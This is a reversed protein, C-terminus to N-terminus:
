WSSATAPLRREFAREIGERLEAADALADRRPALSWEPADHARAVRAVEQIVGLGGLGEYLTEGGPSLIAVYLSAAAIRGRYGSIAIGSIGDEISLPLPTRAPLDRRVGDWWAHHGGVRARRLVLSPMVLVGYEAHGALLEAFRSAVARPEQPAGSAAIEAAAANWLRAADSAAVVALTRDQAGLYRLLEEWVAAESGRLEAPLRLGLNMPAVVVHDPRPLAAMAESGRTAHSACGLAVLAVLTALAKRTATM